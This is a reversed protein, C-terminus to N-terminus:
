FQTKNHLDPFLTTNMSYHGSLSIVGRQDRLDDFPNEGKSIYGELFDDSEHGSGGNGGHYDHGADDWEARQECVM